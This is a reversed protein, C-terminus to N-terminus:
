LIDGHKRTWFELTGQCLGEQFIAVETIGRKEEWDWVLGERSLRLHGQRGETCSARLWLSESFEPMCGYPGKEAESGERCSVCRLNM